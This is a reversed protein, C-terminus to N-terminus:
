EVSTNIYKKPWRVRFTTYAIAMVQFRNNNNEMTIPNEIGYAVTTLEFGNM